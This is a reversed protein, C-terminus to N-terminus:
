ILELSDLSLTLTAGLKTTFDVSISAGALFQYTNSPLFTNVAMFAQM